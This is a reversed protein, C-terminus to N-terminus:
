SQSFFSKDIEGNECLYIMDQISIRQEDYLRKIATNKSIEECANLKNIIKNLDYNLLKSGYIFNDLNYTMVQEVEYESLNILELLSPNIASLNLNGDLIEKRQENLQTDNIYKGDVFRNITEKIESPSNQIEEKESGNKVYFESVYSIQSNKQVDKYIEKLLEECEEPNDVEEKELREKVRYEFILLFNDINIYKSYRLIEEKIVEDTEDSQEHRKLIEKSRDHLEKGSKIDDVDIDELKSAINAETTLMISNGLIKDDFLHPIDGLTFISFMNDIGYKDKYKENLSIFRKRNKEKEKSNKILEDSNFVEVYYNGKVKDYEIFTLYVENINRFSNKIYKISNELVKKEKELLFVDYKTHLNNDTDKMKQEKEISRIHQSHRLLIVLVLKEVNIDEKNNNLFDKLEDCGNMSSRRIINKLEKRLEEDKCISIADDPDLIIEELKLIDEIRLRSRSM